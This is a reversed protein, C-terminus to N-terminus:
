PVVPSGRSLKVLSKITMPTLCTNRSTRANASEQSRTVSGCRTTATHLKLGNLRITVESGTEQLRVGLEYALLGEGAVGGLVCAPGNWVARLATFYQDAVPGLEMVDWPTLSQVPTSHSALILPADILQRWIM